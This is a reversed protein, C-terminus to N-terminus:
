KFIIMTGGIDHLITLTATGSFCSLKRPASSEPGGYVGRQKCKDGIWLYQATQDYNLRLVGSSGNAASITVTTAM